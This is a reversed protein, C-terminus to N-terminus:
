SNNHFYRSHQMYVTEQGKSKCPNYASIVRTRHKNRGEFMLWSWRGLGTPDCDNKPSCRVAIENFTCAATGGYQAKTISEHINSASSVCHKTWRLDRMREIMKDYSPVMHMAIGMEQIGLISIENEHIWEKLLDQKANSQSFVGLCNVNISAVRVIGEELPCMREGFTRQTKSVLLTINYPIMKENRKRTTAIKKNNKKKVHCINTHSVVSQEEQHYKENTNAGMNAQSAESKKNDKQQTRFGEPSVNKWSGGHIM